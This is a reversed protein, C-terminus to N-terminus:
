PSPPSRNSCEKLANCVCANTPRPPFEVNRTVPARQEPAVAGAFAEHPARSVQAAKATPSGENPEEGSALVGSFQHIPLDRPRPPISIGSKLRFQSPLVWVQGNNFCVPYRGRITPGYACLGQPVKSADWSKRNDSDNADFYYITKVDSAVELPRCDDEGLAGNCWFFISAVAVNLAVDCYRGDRRLKLMQEM